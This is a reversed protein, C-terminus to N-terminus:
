QHSANSFTHPCTVIPKPKVESQIFCHRSNKLGIAYRLLALGTVKLCELSFQEIIVFDQFNVPWHPDNIFLNSFFWTRPYNILLNSGPSRFPPDHKLRFTIPFFGLIASVDAGSAFQPYLLPYGLSIHCLVTFLSLSCRLYRNLVYFPLPKQWQSLTDQFLM